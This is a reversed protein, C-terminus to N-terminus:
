STRFTRRPRSSIARLRTSATRTHPRTGSSSMPPLRSVIMAPTSLASAVDSVDPPGPDLRAGAASATLGAVVAGLILLRRFWSLYTSPYM